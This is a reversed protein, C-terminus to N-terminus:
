TVVPSLTGSTDTVDCHYCEISMCAGVDAATAQTIASVYSNGVLIGTCASVLEICYTNGSNDNRIICDKILLNTLIKGTPNHIAANVYDGWFTCGDIVVRDAIEGLEIAQNAGAVTALFECNRVICGDAYNDEGGNIDIATVAQFTGTTVWMNFLCDEVTCRVANVDLMVTVDVLAMGIICNKVTVDAASVVISATATSAAGVTITPRLAGTGLGIVKVGIKDFTLAGASAIAEAHGPGVYIIDGASDTCQDVAFDITAFPYRWSQGHIGDATDSAGATNSSDVFFISGSTIEGGDQIGYRNLVELLESQLTIM